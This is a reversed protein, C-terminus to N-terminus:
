SVAREDDVLARMSSLLDRSPRYGLERQILGSDYEASGLLKQFADSDFGVRRGVVRRAVDGAAALLKFVPEPVALRAPARGLAHRAADYIERTSYPRLDTVLFTRGPAASSSAALWLAVAANDVHLMSRRNGNDPPPPFRRRRIAALMRQLNGRQGPGYVLPFRLCVPEFRGTAAAAFVLQEAEFKSRGYPTRPQPPTQETAPQENGEDIVKVSSVFVVRRVGARVSAEVVRRTGEVNVRHYELPVGSAETMDHTKAALHVVVDIDAFVSSEAPLTALDVAIFEDCLSGDVAHRAIGRVFAGSTRLESVLARGVFGTAGTVLCRTM